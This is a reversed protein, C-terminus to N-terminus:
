ARPPVVHGGRGIARRVDPDIAKLDRRSMVQPMRAGKRQVNQTFQLCVRELRTPENNFNIVCDSAKVPTEPKIQRAIKSFVLYGGLTSGISPWRRRRQGLM